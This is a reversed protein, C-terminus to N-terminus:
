IWESKLAYGGDSEPESTGKPWLVRGLSYVVHWGMDMGCGSAILGGHKQDVTYGMARSMHWDLAVLEGDHVVFFSISRRMGSKSCHRLVCMVKAGPKLCAKLFDIADVKVWDDYVKKSIKVDNERWAKNSEYALNGQASKFYAM